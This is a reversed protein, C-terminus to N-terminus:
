REQKNEFLLIEPKRDINSTTEVVQLHPYLAAKEGIFRWVQNFEKKRCAADLSPTMLLAWGNNGTRTGLGLVDADCGLVCCALVAALALAVRMFGRTTIM